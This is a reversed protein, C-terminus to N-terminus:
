EAVGEVYSSAPLTFLVGDTKVASVDMQWWNGFAQPQKQAHVSLAYGEYEKEWAEAGKAFGQQVLTEEPNEASQLLACVNQAEFLARSELAAEKETLYSHTYVQALVSFSLIFFFLVIVLEILLANMGNSKKM